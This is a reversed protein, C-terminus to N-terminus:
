TAVPAPATRMWTGRQVAMWMLLAKYYTTLNIAWWVGAAGHGLHLALWWGIPIRLLDGTTSIWLIPRTHGAGLLVKENIVQTAVFFQSFALLKVYLLTEQLVAPDRTFHPAIWGAGLLFVATSLLGLARGVWRASAAVSVAGAPDGAGLRQGVLTACAMSTGLYTPFAVGEFVQFGLGLGGKVEDPLRALM